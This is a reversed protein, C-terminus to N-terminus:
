LTEFSARREARARWRCVLAMAGAGLAGGLVLMAVAVGALAAPSPGGSAPPAAPLATDALLAALRWGALALRRQTIAYAAEAYAGDVRTGPVLTGNLYADRVALAHAEALWAPPDLALDAAGFSSRPHAVMLAQAQAQLHARDATSLPDAFTRNYRFGGSDWCAHLNVPRGEFQVMFSNGGKDGAPFAADWLTAAHLPQAADGVLHVIFRLAFVRTWESASPSRLAAVLIGIHDALTGPVCPAPVVGGLALPVNVYHWADMANLGQGKISDAWVACSVFDTVGDATGPFVAWADLLGRASPATAARAVEAVLYHGEQWYGDAVAVALVLLALLGM